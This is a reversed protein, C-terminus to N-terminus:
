DRAVPKGGRQDRGGRRAEGGRLHEQLYVLELAIAQGLARASSLAGWAGDVVARTRTAADAARDAQRVPSSSEM